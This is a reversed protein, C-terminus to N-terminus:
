LGKKIIMDLNDDFKSTDIDEIIKNYENNTLKEKTLKEVKKQAKEDIEDTIELNAFRDGFIGRLYVEYALVKSQIKLNLLDNESVCFNAIESYYESEYDKIKNLIKM